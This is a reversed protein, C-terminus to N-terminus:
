FPRSLAHGQLRVLTIIFVLAVFGLLALAIAISRRNRARLADDADIM